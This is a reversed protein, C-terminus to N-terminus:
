SCKLFELVSRVSIGFKDFPFMEANPQIEFLRSGDNQYAWRIEVLEFFLMKKNDRDTGYLVHSRFKVYHGSKTRLFYVCDTASQRVRKEYGTLPAEPSNYFDNESSCLVGGTGPAEFYVGWPDNVDPVLVLDAAPDNENVVKRQVFSFGKDARFDFFCIHEQLAETKIVERLQIIPEDFKTSIASECAMGNVAYGSKWALIRGGDGKALATFKGQQDTKIYSSVSGFLYDGFEVAVLADAVPKGNTASLVQGTITMTQFLWLRIWIGGALVLFCIFLLLRIRGATLWPFRVRETKLSNM